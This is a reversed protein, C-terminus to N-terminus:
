MLLSNQESDHAKPQISLMNCTSIKNLCYLFLLKCLDDVELTVEHNAEGSYAIPSIAQIVQAVSTSRYTNALAHSYQVQHGM